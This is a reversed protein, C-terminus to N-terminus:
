KVSVSCSGFPALTFTTGRPNRPIWTRWSQARSMRRPRAVAEINHGDPGIVVRRLLEAMTLDSGPNGNDEGGAALAAVHFANVAARDPAQLHSTARNASRTV